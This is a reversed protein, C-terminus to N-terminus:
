TITYSSYSRRVPVERMAMPEFMTEAMQSANLTGVVPKKWRLCKIKKLGDM